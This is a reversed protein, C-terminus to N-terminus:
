ALTKKILLSLRRKLLYKLSQKTASILLELQSHYLHLHGGSGFQYGAGKQGTNTIAQGVYGPTSITWNVGNLAVTLKSTTFKSQTTPFYDWKWPSTGSYDAALTSAMGVILFMLLIQLQKKM